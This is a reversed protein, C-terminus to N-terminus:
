RFANCPIFILEMLTNLWILSGFVGIGKAGMLLITIRIYIIYSDWSNRHIYRCVLPLDLQKFGRVTLNCSAYQVIYTHTM